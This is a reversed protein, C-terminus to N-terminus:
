KDSFAGTPWAPEPLPAHLTLQVQSPVLSSAKLAAITISEIERTSIVVFVAIMREGDLGSSHLSPSIDGFIAALTRIPDNDRDSVSYDQCSYVPRNDIELAATL